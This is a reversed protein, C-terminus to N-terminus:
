GREDGCSTREHAGVRSSNYANTKTETVGSWTNKSVDYSAGYSNDNGLGKVLDFRFGTSM